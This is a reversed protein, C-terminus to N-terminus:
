SVRDTLRHIYQLKTTKMVVVTSMCCIRVQNKVLGGHRKKKKVGIGGGVLSRLSSVPGIGSSSKPIVVKSSSSRSLLKKDPVTDASKALRLFRKKMVIPFLLKLPCGIGLAKVVSGFRPLYVQLTAKSPHCIM